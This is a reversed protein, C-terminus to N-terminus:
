RKELQTTRPLVLVKGKPDILIMEVGLPFEQCATNRAQVLELSLGLTCSHPEQIGPGSIQYLEGQGLNPCEMIVTAGLHPNELNGRRAAIIAEARLTDPVHARIFLFDAQTSDQIPSYSLRSIYAAAQSANEEQILCFSVETDLLIRALLEFIPLVTGTSPIHELFEQLDQIKAPFSYCDL